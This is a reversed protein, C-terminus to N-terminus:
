IHPYKMVNVTKKKSLSEFIAEITLQTNLTNKLSIRNKNTNINKLIDKTQLLYTENLGKYKCNIKNTKNKKHELLYNKFFDWEYISQKLYVKIKRESKKNTFDLFIESIQGSSHQLIIQVRDEVDM